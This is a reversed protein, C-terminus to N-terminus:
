VTFRSGPVTCRKVVFDRFREMAVALDRPPFYAHVIRFRGHRPHGFGVGPTLLIGTTEYCERWLHMEAAETDEGLFRGLDAWVFLSGRSALTTSNM